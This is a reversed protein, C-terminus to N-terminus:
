GYELGLTTWFAMDSIEEPSPHNDEGSATKGFPNNLPGYGAQRAIMDEPSEQSSSWGVNQYPEEPVQQSSFYAQLEEASLEVSVLNGDEDYVAQM